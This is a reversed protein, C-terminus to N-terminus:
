LIVRVVGTTDIYPDGQSLGNNLADTDDIYIINNVYLYKYDIKNDLGLYIAKLIQKIRAILKTLSDGEEVDFYVDKETYVCKTSIYKGDCEITSNDTEPKCGKNCERAM